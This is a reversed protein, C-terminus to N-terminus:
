CLFARITDLQGLLPHLFSSCPYRNAGFFKGKDSCSSFCLSLEWGEANGRKVSVSPSSQSGQEPVAPNSRGSFQWPKYLYFHAFSFSELTVAAACPKWCSVHCLSTAWANVELRETEGQRLRQPIEALLVRTDESLSLM